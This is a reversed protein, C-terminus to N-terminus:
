GALVLHRALGYGFACVAGGHFTALQSTTHGRRRRWVGFGHLAMGSVLPAVILSWLPAFTWSMARYPVLWGSVLGVSAGLAGWGLAALMPRTGGSERRVRQVGVDVLSEGIVQILLEALLEFIIDVDGWM